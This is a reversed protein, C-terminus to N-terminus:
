RQHLSAVGHQEPSRRGTPRQVGKRDQVAIECEDRSREGSQKPEDVNTHTYTYVTHQGLLLGGVM